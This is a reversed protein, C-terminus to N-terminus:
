GGFPLPGWHEALPELAAVPLFLLAGIIVITGILLFAFTSTDHRLAGLGFPTSKKAGLFAAMAM